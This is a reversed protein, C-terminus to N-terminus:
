CFECQKALISYCMMTEPNSLKILDFVWLIESMQTTPSCYILHFLSYLLSPCVVLMEQFMFSWIFHMSETCPCFMCPCYLDGWWKGHRRYNTSFSALNKLVSTFQRKLRKEWKFENWAIQAISMDAMTHAGSWDLCIGKYWVSRGSMMDIKWRSRWFPTSVSGTWIDRLSM